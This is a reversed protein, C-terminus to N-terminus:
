LECMVIWEVRREGARGLRLRGRLRVTCTWNMSWVGRGSREEGFPPTGRNVSQRLAAPETDSHPENVFELWDAVWEM